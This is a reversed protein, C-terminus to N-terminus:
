CLRPHDHHPRSRHHYRHGASHIGPYFSTARTHRDVTAIINAGPQRFIIVPLQVSANLYGAARINQVSDTLRQSMPYIFPRAM